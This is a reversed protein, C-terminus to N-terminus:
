KLTITASDSGGKQSVVKLEIEDGKNAQILWEHKVEGGSGKIQQAFNTKSSGSIIAKPNVQLQIMTPKVARSVVGHQITTPLYGLNEVVATIRFLGDGHNVVDTQTIKVKPLLGALYIAFDSHKKGSDVIVKPDPNNIENPTFGGIEVEGLEPHQYSKWKVFGAVSHDHLYSLFTQDFGSSSNGRGGGAMGTPMRMGGGRTFGSANGGRSREGTKATTDKKVPLGWGPTSFSLVGFQYYGYQFFAGKPDRLYPATKIGTLKKYEESAKTFYTIDGTNVTTAARRAPRQSRGSAATSASGGSRFNFGGFMFRGFRSFGGTTVLGVKSAEANSSNAFDILDLGRNSSLQGKSNPPTILNDSMGFSLMVGINKHLLIWDLIARSELESVMHIGADSQYYPYAHQFNRNIDVGGQGDENIFGDADNDIGEWFIKYAGTEGKNADAKKMLMDNDPHICYEGLDDKVRMMTIVGNGDLDEPGDEDLRGDNDADYPTLNTRFGTKVSAFFQEAGDPNLRPIFYFVQSDLAKTVQENQGYQDTLSSIMDVSIQSGVLHDGEINATILVASRESLAVGTRKAVTLVWLNRGEASQGISEISVLEPHSKVLNKLNATLGKYDMYGSSQAQLNTSMLLLIGLLLGPIIRKLSRERQQLSLIM